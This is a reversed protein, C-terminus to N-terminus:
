AEPPLNSVEAESNLFSSATCIVKAEDTGGGEGKTRIDILTKGSVLRSGLHRGPEDAERWEGDLGVRVGNQECIVALAEFGTEMSIM